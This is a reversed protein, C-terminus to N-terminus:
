NIDIDLRYIMADLKENYQQITIQNSKYSAVLKQLKENEATDDKTAEQLSAVKMQTSKQLMLPVVGVNNELMQNATKRNRFAFFVVIVLLVGIGALVTNMDM